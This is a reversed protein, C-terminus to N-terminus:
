LNTKFPRNEASLAEMRGDPNSFNSIKVEFHPSLKKIAAGLCGDGTMEEDRGRSDIWLFMGGILIKKVGLEELKDVLIKWRKYDDIKPQNPIQPTSFGDKTPIFYIKANINPDILSKLKGATKSEKGTEEMVLLPINNGNKEIVKVLGNRVLGAKKSDNLSVTSDYVDYYPHVFIRVLGRNQNIEAELLKQKAEDLEFFSEFQIGREYEPGPSLVEIM